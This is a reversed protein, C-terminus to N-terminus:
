YGKFVGRQVCGEEMEFTSATQRDRVPLSTNGITIIVGPFVVEKVIVRGNKSEVIEKKLGTMINELEKQKNLLQQYTILLKRLIDEKDSPLKGGKELIGKLLSIGKNTKDLNNVCLAKEKELEAIEDRLKPRIGVELVTRTAFESGITKGIILKGAQILGGVILGKRGEVEVQGEAMIRSHMVAENIKINEGADLIGNEIFKAHINQGAKIFGKDKGALGHHLVVDKGAQLYASGVIGFVEINEAAKVEFGDYVRGKVIVTGIFDINGTHYDVDRVELIPNVEVKGWENIGVQGNATAILHLGEDDVMTNKGQPIPKDKGPRAKIIQGLVNVGDEGSTAPIKTVLVSGKKINCVTNLQKYDVTGDELIQPKNDKFSKFHLNLIADEGNQPKHTLAILTRTCKGSQVAKEIEQTLIGCTVKMKHLVQNVDDVSITQGNGLPPDITLYAQMRDPSVQLDLQGDQDTNEMNKHEEEM